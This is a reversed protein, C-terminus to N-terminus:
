NADWQISSFTLQCCLSPVCHMSPFKAQHPINLGFQCLANVPAFLVPDYHGLHLFATLGRLENEM